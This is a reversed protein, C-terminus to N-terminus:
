TGEYGQSDMDMSKNISKGNSKLLLITDKNNYTHKRFHNYKYRAVFSYNTGFITLQKDLTYPSV